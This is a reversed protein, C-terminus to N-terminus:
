EFSSSYKFLVTSTVLMSVPDSRLHLVLFGACQLVHLTNICARGGNKHRVANKCGQALGGVPRADRFKKVRYPVCFHMAKVQDVLRSFLCCPKM